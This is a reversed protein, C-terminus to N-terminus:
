TDHHKRLKERVRNLQVSVTNATTGTIEAIEKPDLDDMYRMIFLRREEDRLQALERMVENLLAKGETRDTGSPEFGTEEILTDLSEAAYKRKEDIILHDAIRYLLGRPNQVVNGEKLYLWYKMFTDQMLEEARGSAYVRFFCHRYIPDAFTEYIEVFKGQLDKM